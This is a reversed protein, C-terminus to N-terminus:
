AAPPYMGAVAAAGPGGSWGIYAMSTSINEHGLLSAVLVVNGETVRALETGFTHRLKHATAEIGLSRLHRAVKFGVTQASVGVIPGPRLGRLMVALDPHVPVIRDKSGKGCRVALVPSQQSLDVDSADIAAIECCRLGAYAALAIMLRVDPTAASLISTLYDAPVPRPLLKPVRIPDTKLVPNICLDRKAAWTFFAMLDSRYARRTAASRFTGLWDDVLYNTADLLRMPTISAAFGKLSVDRREITKRSLGRVREYQRFAVVHDDNTGM